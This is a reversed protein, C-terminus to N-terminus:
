NALPKIEHYNIRSVIESNLITHRDFVYSININTSAKDITM